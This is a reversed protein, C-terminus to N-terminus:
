RTTQQGRRVAVPRTRSRAFSRTRASLALERALERRLSAIRAANSPPGPRGLLDLLDWITETYPIEWPPPRGKALRRAHLRAHARRAGEIRELLAKRVAVDELRDLGRSLEARLTELDCLAADTDGAALDDVMAENVALALRKAAEEEAVLTVITKLLVDTPAGM